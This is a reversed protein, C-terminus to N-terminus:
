FRMLHAPIPGDSGSLIYHLAEQLEPLTPPKVLYYWAGLLRADEIDRPASSTSYMVVPIDRLRPNRDLISLLELGNMGNMNIDLFIFRPLQEMGELLELAARGDIAHSCDASHGLREIARSFILFDDPDNDVLLLTFTDSMCHTATSM